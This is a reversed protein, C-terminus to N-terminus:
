LTPNSTHTVVFLYYHTIYPHDCPFLLLRYGYIFFGCVYKFLPDIYTTEEKEGEHDKWRKTMNGAEISRISEIQAALWQVPYIPTLQRMMDVTSM